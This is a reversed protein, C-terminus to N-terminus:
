SEIIEYLFLMPIFNKESNAKIIKKPSENASGIDACHGLSPKGPPNRKKGSGKTGQPIFLVQAPASPRTGQVM